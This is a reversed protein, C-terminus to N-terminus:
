GGPYFDWLREAFEGGKRTAAHLDDATRAILDACEIQRRWPHTMVEEPFLLGLLNGAIAGTSDSDGSHTVAIRLGHEFCTAVRAAYLAIALAEEAVWGGGLSEVTEPSGDEPAACAARIAQLTATDLRMGLVERVAEALPMGRLMSALVHAFARAADRATQHGHTLHSCEDALSDIQGPPMLGIPAVRMITGCGKSDNRAMDGFSGSERLAALCATGPARRRCLRPDAALGVRDVGQVRGTEGQTRLWRLLAHHVVSPPHCIGKLEGRGIARILGEATFLTMQTDDTIAAPIGDHPLIRDVGHPFRARIRM